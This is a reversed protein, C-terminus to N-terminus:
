PPYTKALDPHNQAFVFKAEANGGVGFHLALVSAFFLKAFRTLM